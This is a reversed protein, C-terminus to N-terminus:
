LENLFELINIIEAVMILRKKKTLNQSRLEEDIIYDENDTEIISGLKM